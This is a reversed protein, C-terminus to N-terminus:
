PAGFVFVLLPWTLGLLAGVGAITCLAPHALAARM